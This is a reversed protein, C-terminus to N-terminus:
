GMAGQDPSDLTSSYNGNTDVSLNFVITLSASNPLELKGSWIGSLDHQAFTQISLLIFLFTKLLYKM